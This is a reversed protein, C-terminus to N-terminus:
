EPSKETKKDTNERLEPEEAETGSNNAEDTAKEEGSGLYKKQNLAILLIGITIASDAINFVPRFFVFSEGAWFPFWDPFNGNIMPFYLMDVVHGQLFGAYGGEAPLFQAIKGPTSSDFILGYFCSDLINGFAGAIILSIAVILGSPSGKGQFHYLGYCLIVVAVIRFFTLLFKGWEGGFEMGFAMGPNEIFHIRFWDGIVDFSQGYRMHTKVWIKSGQDLILVGLITLM